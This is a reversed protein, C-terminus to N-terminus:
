IKNGEDVNKAWVIFLGAFTGNGIWRKVGNLIFGGPVKKATTKINAADSGQGPETLAFSIVKKLSIGDPLFRRRQDEDGLMDIVTLGLCNHVIFFTGISAEMRGFEYAIAGSTIQSLGPGGHDKIHM